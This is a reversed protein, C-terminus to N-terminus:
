VSAGQSKQAIGQGYYSAPLQFLHWMFQNVSGASLRSRLRRLLGLRVHTLVAKVVMAGLMALLLPRAWMGRFGGILVQDVFVQTVAPVILGPIVTLLTALM